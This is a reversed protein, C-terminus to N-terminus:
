EITIEQPLADVKLPIDISLLGANLSAKMGELDYKASIKYGFDFSKRVINRSIYNWTSPDEEVNPKDYKVRVEGPSKTIKIDGKEAGVCAMQLVLSDPTKIIDVPYKFKMSEKVNEFDTASDFLNKFFVDYMSLPSNVTRIM